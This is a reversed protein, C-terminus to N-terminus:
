TSAPEDEGIPCLTQFAQQHYVLPAKDKRANWVEDVSGVVIAHTDLVTLSHVTCAIASTASALRPAFDPKCYWHDPDFRQAGSLATNAAFREAVTRADASLLNVCFRANPSLARYMAGFRNICALLRPPAMSLSCVATATMGIAAEGEGATVITVAGALRRMGERFAQEQIQSVV